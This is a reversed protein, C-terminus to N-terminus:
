ELTQGKWLSLSNPNTNRIKYIEYKQLCVYKMYIENKKHIYIHIGKCTKHNGM